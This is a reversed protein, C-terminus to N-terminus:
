WAQCTEDSLTSPEVEIPAPPNLKKEIGSTVRDAFRSIITTKGRIISSLDCYLFRVLQVDAAKAKDLVADLENAISLM